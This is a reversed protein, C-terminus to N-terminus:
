NEAYVDAHNYMNVNREFNFFEDNKGPTGKGGIKRLLSRKDDEHNRRSMNSDIQGRFAQSGVM